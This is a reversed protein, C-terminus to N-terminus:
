DDYDITKIKKNTIDKVISEPDFAYMFASIALFPLIIPTLALVVALLFAFVAWLLITYLIGRLITKLQEMDKNKSQIYRNVMM